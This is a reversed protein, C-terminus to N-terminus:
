KQLNNALEIKIPDCSEILNKIVKPLKNGINWLDKFDRPIILKTLKNYSCYIYKCSKPLILETLKNYECWVRECDMPLVLETLNNNICSVYDCGRPIILKTLYNADCHVQRCKPLVLEILGMNSLDIIKKSKLVIKEDPNNRIIYYGDQSKNM